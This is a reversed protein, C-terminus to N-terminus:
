EFWFRIGIGGGASLDNVWAFPSSSTDIKM